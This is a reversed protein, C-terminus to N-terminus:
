GLHKTRWALKPRTVVGKWAGNYSRKEVNGDHCQIKIVDELLIEPTEKSKCGVIATLYYTNDNLFNSPITCTSRFFGIPCPKDHWEDITSSVGHFPMSAFVLTGSQDKLWIAAYLKLGNVRNSYCIEVDIPYNILPNENAEEESGQIVRVSILRTSSTQPATEDDPWFISGADACNHAFYKQIIPAVAGQEMIKGAHLFIGKTCLSGISAMNHSVVLVARGSNAFEGMRGICKKQFDVDGVALVEDVILIDTRLHAAVSFALRVYMGSSYRKVPTDIYKGCGSFEVIEEFQQTIDKKSMGLIAGNLFINERGTLEPHFGTGVELLSAIRGKVKIHGSTPATVRSLIKLLTSKGAGNRGIIGLVEGSRVEFSIDDLALAHHDQSSATHTSTVFGDKVRAYPDPMGRVKHWWRNLDRSITGTSIEGLRYEKTLNSVQIVIESM